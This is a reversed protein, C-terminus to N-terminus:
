MGKIVQNICTKCQTIRKFSSDAIKSNYPLPIVMSLPITKALFAISPEHEFNRSSHRAAVRKPLMRVTYEKVVCQEFQKINKAHTTAFSHTHSDTSGTCLMATTEGTTLLGGCRALCVASAAPIMEQETM